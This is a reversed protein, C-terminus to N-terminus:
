ALFTSHLDDVFACKRSELTGLDAEHASLLEYGGWFLIVKPLEGFRRLLKTRLSGPERWLEFTEFHRWGYVRILDAMIYYVTRSVYSKIVGLESVILNM